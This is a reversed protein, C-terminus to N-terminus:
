QSCVQFDLEGITIWIEKFSMISSSGEGLKEGEQLERGMAGVLGQERNGAPAAQSGQLAGLTSWPPRRFLQCAKGAACPLGKWSCLAPLHLFLSAVHM